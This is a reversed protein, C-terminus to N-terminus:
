VCVGDLSNQGLCKGLNERRRKGVTSRQALRKRKRTYRTIDPYFQVDRKDGFSTKLFIVAQLLKNCFKTLRNPIKLFSDDKM